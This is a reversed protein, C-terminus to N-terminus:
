TFRPQGKLQACNVKIQEREACEAISKLVAVWTNITDLHKTALDTYHEALFEHDLISSKGIMKTSYDASELANTMVSRARDIHSEVLKVQQQITM